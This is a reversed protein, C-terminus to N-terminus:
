LDGDMCAAYQEAIKIARKGAELLYQELPRHVYIMDKPAKSHSVVKLEFNLTDVKRANQLRRLSADWDLNVDGPLFHLDDEAAPVGAPDQIGLNDNLHTMILRDGFEALFDLKHPYCHDHGSDWCYGVNPNDRYRDMLAALYEEGELNEFAITVGQAQAHAVIRDFNEFYLPGGPFTYRLGRWGHMVLIPIQYRACDDISRLVAEKISTAEGPDMRWLMRVDRTPGHLSQLVMGQERACAAIEALSGDQSWIPSLASFGAKRVLPIVERIPLAYHTQLSFGIAPLM